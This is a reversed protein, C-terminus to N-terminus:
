KQTIKYGGISIALDYSKNDNYFYTVQGDATNDVYMASGYNMAAGCKQQLFVTVSYKFMKKLKHLEKYLEDVLEKTFDKFGAVNLKKDPQCNAEIVDLIVKKILDEEFDADDAM